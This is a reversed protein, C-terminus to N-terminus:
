IVVINGPDKKLTITQSDVINSEGNSGRTSVGFIYMRNATLGKIRYELQDGTVKGVVIYSFPQYSIFM